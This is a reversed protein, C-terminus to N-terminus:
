ATASVDARKERRRQQRPTFTQGRDAFWDAVIKRVLSSVTRVEARAAKRLADHMAADTQFNVSTLVRKM